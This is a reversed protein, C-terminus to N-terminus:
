RLCVRVREFCNRRFGLTCNTLRWCLRRVCALDVGFQALLIDTSASYVAPGNYKRCQLLWTPRRVHQRAHKHMREGPGFPISRHRRLIRGRQRRAQGDSRVRARACTLRGTEPGPDPHIRACGGYPEAVASIAGGWSCRLAYAYQQETPLMHTYGNM